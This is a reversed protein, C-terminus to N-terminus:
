EYSEGKILDKDWVIHNRIYLVFLGITLPLFGYNSSMLIWTLWITQLGIGFLWCYRYKNGILLMHVFTGCSLLWPLVKLFLTLDSM